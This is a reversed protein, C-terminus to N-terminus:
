MAGVDRRIKRVQLIVIFNVVIVLPEAGQEPHPFVNALVDPVM